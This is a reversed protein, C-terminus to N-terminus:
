DQVYLLIKDIPVSQTSPDPNPEPAATRPTQPHGRRANHPTAGGAELAGAADTEGTALLVPLASYGAFQATQAHELEAIEDLLHAHDRRIRTAIEIVAALHKGGPLSDLDFAKRM